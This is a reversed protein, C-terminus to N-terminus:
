TQKNGTLLKKHSNIKGKTLNFSGFLLNFNIKKFWGNQSLTQGLPM